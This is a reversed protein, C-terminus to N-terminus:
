VVYYDMVKKITRPPAEGKDEYLEKLTAILAPQVGAIDTLTVLGVLRKSGEEGDVVPLKKIKHVFMLRVADELHLEPSATMLPRSM